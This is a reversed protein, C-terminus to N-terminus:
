KLQLVTRGAELRYRLLGGEGPPGIPALKIEEQEALVLEGECGPPLGLTLERRGPKGQARFHVPGAGTYAVLELETLNGLQPRVEIRRFGPSLPRIGAIGEFLIYLPAVACHSWQQGIDPKIQFHEQLTNNLLVSPMKAWVERLDNLVADGRGGKALAWLRWGANAPYSLGMEKRRNALADLAAAADGQPCQDFLVSTALSRDCLSLSKEETLWPLNHVFMRHEKSWFRATAATLLKASLERVTAAHSPNGFAECMPALAYHWMAATYLNFACQKHRQTFTGAVGPTSRYAEYDMWVCPVGLNEVPLLGDGDRDILTRLYESFRLLRPYPERLAELDGTYEYHRWCDFNLQVGHDLIPGLHFLDLQRQAIRALRDYAPWCDLFYGDKTMGQSYTTLFRAPSQTEGFTLRVAQLQHGCDGSYQQRERGMCDVLTDQACNHLTNISADWLKQLAPESTRIIRSTPGHMFVAARAWKASRSPAQRAESTSNYGACRRSTLLRSNTKARM